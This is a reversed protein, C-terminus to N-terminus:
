IIEREAQEQQQAAHEEITTPNLILISLRYSIQPFSLTGKQLAVDDRKVQVWETRTLKFVGVRVKCCWM